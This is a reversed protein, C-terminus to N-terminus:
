RRGLMAALQQGMRAPDHLRRTSLQVLRELCGCLERSYADQEPGAGSKTAWYHNWAQWSAETWEVADRPTVDDQRKAKKRVDEPVKPCMYCPPKNNPPRELQEPKDGKHRMIPQWRDDYM